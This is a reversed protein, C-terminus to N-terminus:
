LLSHVPLLQMCPILILWINRLLRKTTKGTGAFNHERGDAGFFVKCYEYTGFYLAHAPGTIITNSLNNNNDFVLSAQGLLSLISM